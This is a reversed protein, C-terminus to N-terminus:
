AAADEGDDIEIDQVSEEAEVEAVEAATLPLL